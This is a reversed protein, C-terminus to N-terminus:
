IHILSLGEILTTSYSDRDGAFDIANRITYGTNLRYEAM